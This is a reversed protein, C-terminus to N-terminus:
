FVKDAYKANSAVLIVDRNEVAESIKEALMEIYSEDGIVPGEIHIHITGKNSEKEPFGTIPNASYTGVTANGIGGASGGGPQMSSIASVQAMGFAMAAAAAAAGLAPGVFPISAMASYAGVAAKYTNVLTEAISIAKFAEFAAKNTKGFYELAFKANDIANQATAAQAMRKQREIRDEEEAEMQYIQLAADHEWQNLALSKQAFGTQDELRKQRMDYLADTLGQEMLKEMDTKQFLTEESKAMMLAAQEELKLMATDVTPPPLLKDPTLTTTSLPRGMWSDEIGFGQGYGGGAGGSPKGGGFAGRQGPPIAMQDLGTQEMARMEKTIDRLNGPIKDLNENLLYLSGILLGLPTSGSLIRAIIGIGGAGIIGEPFAKYADYLGKISSTIKDITEYTKQAILEDNASVWREINEAWELLTSKGREMLELLVKNKVAVDGVRELVDGYLNKLQDLGGSFTKANEQAVLFGRAAFETIIRLQETKDTTSRLAPIYRRLMTFEGQEALAIYMAMSQVDRGTAAALGISARTAEELRGSTVGLNKQLAMLKLIQEDGYTTVAQISSAFKTYQHMLDETYEDNARLAAGLAIQAKEQEMALEIAKTGMKQIAYLAATVAVAYGKWHDKLNELLTTQHGYQEENIQKIKTAKAKEARVLDDATAKGSRKIAEFSQVAQNRMLDFTAGSKIGLNKFNKELIQAGSKAEKVMTQQARMYRSPDLDLEIFITGVRNAM